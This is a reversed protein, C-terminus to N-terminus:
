ITAYKTCIAEFFARPITMIYLRPHRPGLPEMNGPSRLHNGIAELVDADPRFVSRAVLKKVELMRGTVGVELCVGWFLWPIGAIKMAVMWWAVARMPGSHHVVYDISDNRADLFWFTSLVCMVIWLVLTLLVM